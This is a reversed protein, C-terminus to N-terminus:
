RVVELRFTDADCPTAHGARCPDFRRGLTSFSGTWLNTKLPNRRLDGLWPSSSWTTVDTLRRRHCKPSSTTIVLRWDPGGPVVPARM